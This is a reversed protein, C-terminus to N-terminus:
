VSSGLCEGVGRQPSALASFSAQLTEYKSTGAPLKERHHEAQITKLRTDEQVPGYRVCAWCDAGEGVLITHGSKNNITACPPLASWRTAARKCKM